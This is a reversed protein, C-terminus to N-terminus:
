LSSLSLESLVDVRNLQEEQNHGLQYTVLVATMILFSVALMVARHHAGVLSLSRGHANITPQLGSVLNQWNQILQGEFGPSPKPHDIKDLIKKIKEAESMESARLGKLSM